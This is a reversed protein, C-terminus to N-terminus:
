QVDIKENPPILLKQYIRIKPGAIGTFRKILHLSREEESLIKEYFEKQNRYDQYLPSSPDPVQSSDQVFFRNFNSSSIVIYDASNELISNPNNWYDRINQIHYLPRKNYYNKVREACQSGSFEIEQIKRFAQGEDTLNRFIVPDILLVSEGPIMKQIWQEAAVRNDQIMDRHVMRSIRFLPNLIFLFVCLCVFLLKLIPVRLKGGIINVIRGMFLTLIPYLFIFYHISKKELQGIYLFSPLILLLFLIDEKTHKYIAYGVALFVVPLVYTNCRWIQDLVWLWDVGNDGVHGTTLLNNVLFYGHIFRHPIILWGPSGTVFGLIFLGYTSLIIKWHRGKVSLFPACLLPIVAMGANYKTSAALGILFSALFLYHTQNTFFFEFCLLLGATVLFATTMEPLAYRSFAFYHGGFPDFTLICLTILGAGWGYRKKTWLYVAVVTMMFMFISVFRGGFVLLPLKHDFLFQMWRSDTLCSLPYGTTLYYGAFLILVPIVMLYSFFTPYGFHEPLITKHSVFHSINYLLPIEDMYVPVRIGDLVRIVLAIIIIVIGTYKKFFDLM